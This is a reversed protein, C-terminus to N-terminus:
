IGGAVVIPKVEISNEYFANLMKLIKAQDGLNHKRMILLIEKLDMSIDEIRKNQDKM